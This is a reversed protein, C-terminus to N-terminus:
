SAVPYITGGSPPGEVFFLFNDGRTADTKVYFTIHGTTDFISRETPDSGRIIIVYDGFGIEDWNETSFAMGADDFAIGTVASGTNDLMRVPIRRTENTAPQSFVLLDSAVNSM